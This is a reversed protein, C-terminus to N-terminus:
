GRMVIKPTHSAHSPQATPPGSAAPVPSFAPPRRPPTKRCPFRLGGGRPHRVGACNGRDGAAEGLPRREGGLQIVSARHVVGQRPYFRHTHLFSVWINVWVERFGLDSVVM